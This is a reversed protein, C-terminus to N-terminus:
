FPLSDDDMDNAMVPQMRPQPQPAVQFKAQPFAGETSFPQNAAPAGFAGAGAGGGFTGKPLSNEFAEQSEVSYRRPVYASPSFVDSLVNIPGFYAANRGNDRDYQAQKVLQKHLYATGGDGAYEFQKSFLDQYKQERVGLLARVQNKQAHGVIALVASIDGSGSIATIEKGTFGAEDKQGLNCLAKFFLVLDVEGNASLRASADLKSADKGFKGFKDIYVNRSTSNEIWVTHKVLVDVPAEEGDPTVQGSLYFDLQIQKATGAKNQGFYTPEEKPKRGMEELETKTPNLAVVRLNAAGTILVRDSQEVPAETKVDFAM